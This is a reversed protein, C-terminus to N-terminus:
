CDSHVHTLREHDDRPVPRARLCLVHGGSRLHGRRRGPASDNRKIIGHEILVAYHAARPLEVRPSTQAGLAAWTLWLGLISALM